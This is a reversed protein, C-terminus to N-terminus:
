DEDREERKAEARLDLQLLLMVVVVFLEDAPSTVEVSHVDRLSLLRGRARALTRGNREIGFSMDFLSGQLTAGDYRGGVVYYYRGFSVLKRRIRFPEGGMHVLWTPFLALIKRKLTALERGDSERYLRWIPFFWLQGLAKYAPAGDGDNIRVEGRISLLKNSVTLLRPPRPAEPQGFRTDAGTSEGRIIEM